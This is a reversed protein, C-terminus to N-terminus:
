YTWCVGGRVRDRRVCDFDVNDGCNQLDQRDDQAEDGVTLEHAHGVDDHDRGHARDGGSPGHAVALAGHDRVLDREGANRLFTTFSFLLLVVGTYSGSLVFESVGGQEPGRPRVFVWQEPGANCACPCTLGCELKPPIRRPPLGMRRGGHACGHALLDNGWRM